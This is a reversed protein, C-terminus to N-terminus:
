RYCISHSRAQVAKTLRNQHPTNTIKKVFFGFIKEKPPPSPAPAHASPPTTFMHSCINRIASRSNLFLEVLNKQFGLMFIFIFDMCLHLQFTIKSLYVYFLSRFFINQTPPTLLRATPQEAWIADNM